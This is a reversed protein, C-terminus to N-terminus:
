APIKRVFTAGESKWAWNTIQEGTKFDFARDCRPCFKYGDRKYALPKCLCNPCQGKDNLHM